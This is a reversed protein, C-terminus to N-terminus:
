KFAKSFPKEIFGNELFYVHETQLREIKQPNISYYFDKNQQIIYSLVYEDAFIAEFSSFRLKNYKKWFFRRLLRITKKNYNKKYYIKIEDANIFWKTEELLGWYFDENQQNM